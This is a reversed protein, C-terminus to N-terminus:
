MGQGTLHKAPGAVEIGFYSIVFYLQRGGISFDVAQNCTMYRSLRLSFKSKSCSQFRAHFM